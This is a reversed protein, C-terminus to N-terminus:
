QGELAEVLYKAYCAAGNACAQMDANFDADDITDATRAPHKSIIATLALGAFYDLRKKEKKTM